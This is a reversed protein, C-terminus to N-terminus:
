ARLSIMASGFDMMSDGTLYSNSGQWEQTHKDLGPISIVLSLIFFAEFGMM